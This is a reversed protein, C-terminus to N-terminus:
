TTKLRSCGWREGNGRSISVWARRAVIVQAHLGKIISPDSLSGIKLSRLKSMPSKLWFYTVRVEKSSGKVDDIYVKEAVPGLKFKPGLEYTKPIQEKPIPFSREFALIIENYHQESEYLQAGV